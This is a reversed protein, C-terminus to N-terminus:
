MTENRSVSSRDLTANSSHPDPHEGQWERAEWATVAQGPDVGARVLIPIEHGSDSYIVLPGCLRSLRECIRVILEPSGNKFSFPQPTSAQANDGCKSMRLTTWQEFQCPGATSITVLCSDADMAYEVTYGELDDLVQRIENPTPYRSEGRPCNIGFTALWAPLEDVDGLHFICYLVSM